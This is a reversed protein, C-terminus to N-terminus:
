TSAAQRGAGSSTGMYASWARALEDALREDDLDVDVPSFDRFLTASRVASVAFFMGVRVGPGADGSPGAVTAAVAEEAQAVLRRNYEDLRARLEPDSQARLLRARVIGGFSRYLETLAGLVEGLYAETSVGRARQPDLLPELRSEIAEELREELEGFLAEKGSFRAYFAGVTYGAEECIEEVTAEGFSKERLVRDAAEVLRRLTERSRDQQPRRRQETGSM